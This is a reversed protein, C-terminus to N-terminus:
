GGILKGVVKATQPGYIRPKETEQPARFPQDSKLFVYHGAYSEGAGGEAGSRYHESEFRHEARKDAGSRRVPSHLGGPLAPKM